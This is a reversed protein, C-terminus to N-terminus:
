ISGAMAGGTMFLTAGTMYTSQDGLLFLCSNAVEEPTGARGMPIPQTRARRVTEVDVKQAAALEANLSDTLPTDILGPALVNVRVGRPQMLASLSAALNHLAAKSSAYIPTAPASRVAAISGVMVIAGGPRVLGALDRVLLFPSVLNVSFLHHIENAEIRDWPQADLVGAATVIGDIGGTCAAVVAARGEETALDAAAWRLRDRAEGPRRATAVVDHGAALLRECIAGGIGGAAGTVLYTRPVPFANNM